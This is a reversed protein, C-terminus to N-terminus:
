IKMKSLLFTRQCESGCFSRGANTHPDRCAICANIDGGRQLDDLEKSMEAIRENWVKIWETTRANQLKERAYELDDKLTKIRRQRDEDQVVDPTVHRKKLGGGLGKSGTRLSATRKPSAPVDKAEPQLNWATRKFYEDSVADFEAKAKELEVMEGMTVDEDDELAYEIDEIFFKLYSHRDSLDQTSMRVVETHARFQDNLVARKQRFEDKSMTMKRSGRFHNGGDLERLKRMIQRAVTEESLQRRVREEEQRKHELHRELQARLDEVDKEAEALKSRYKVVDAEAEALHRRTREEM